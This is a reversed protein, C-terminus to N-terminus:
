QGLSGFNKLKEINHVLCFLQWQGQVKRQGRLSFRRLRKNTTINAFVPEVVRMRQSYIVKGAASDIREKMWDTYPTTSQTRRKVVFSVQRGRGKRHDAAQPNEMCKAKLPCHRCQLLRGEFHVVTDGDRNVRTGRYSLLNGEPCVCSNGRQDFRFESAPIVGGREAGDWPVGTVAPKKAYKGKHDAFRPDRSRFQNDPIYANIRNTKLYEMNGEHAFGTDATVTIGAKYLNHSIKLRKFRERIEGLVPQLCHQEQGEGIANAAIVIQHKSDVAAIGNYDQLTGKSTTMKASDNDTINSKVEKPKKAKGMRPESKKLFEGIKDAAASLTAITQATRQQQAAEGADRNDLERHKQLHHRILTKLKKRKAELEKFTGSWQKAANSPLKCGDIAFLENGLLGQQHCVLLVQEFVTEIQTPFGSVFGAITTFHPETDCALAKFLINTKCCWAIERSSTIGKSYAFLIIKLLIAPDYAPRGNDDNRYEPAFVSLDLKEEILYHLAYEFTGPQLQDRFNVVVMAHQNYDYPIFKAM